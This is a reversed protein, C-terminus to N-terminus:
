IKKIIQVIGDDWQIGGFPQIPKIDARAEGKADPTSEVVSAEMRNAIEAVVDPLMEENNGIMRALVIVSNSDGKRKQFVWTMEEITDTAVDKKRLKLIWEDDSGKLWSMAERNTFTRGLITAFPIGTLQVEGSVILGFSNNLFEKPPEAASCLRVVLAIVWFAILRVSNSTLTEKM